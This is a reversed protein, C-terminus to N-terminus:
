LLTLQLFINKKNNARPTLAGLPINRQLTLFLNKERWIKAAEKKQNTTSCLFRNLSITCDNSKLSCVSCLYCAEHDAM